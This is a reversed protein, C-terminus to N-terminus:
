VELVAEGQFPAPLLFLGSSSPFAGYECVNANTGASDIDLALSVKMPFRSVGHWAHIVVNFEQARRV